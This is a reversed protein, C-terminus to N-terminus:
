EETTYLSAAFVIDRRIALCTTGMKEFMFFLFKIEFDLLFLYTCHITALLDQLKGFTM